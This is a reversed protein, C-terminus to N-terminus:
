VESPDMCKYQAFYAYDCGNINVSNCCTGTGNKYLLKAYGSACHHTMRHFDCVGSHKGCWDWQYDDGMPGCAGSDWYATLHVDGAQMPPPTPVPTPAPTPASSQNYVYSEIFCTGNTSNVTTDGIPLATPAPTNALPSGDAGLAVYSVDVIEGSFAPAMDGNAWPMDGYAHGIAHGIAKGIVISTDPHDATPFLGKSCPTSMDDVFLQYQTSEGAVYRLATEHWLGDNVAKACGFYGVWGIDFGVHGGRLFLMKGQGASGGNRWLGHAFPKGVITGAAATTKFRAKLMFNPHQSGPPLMIDHGSLDWDSTNTSAAPAPAPTAALPSGEAM